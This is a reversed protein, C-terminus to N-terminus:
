FTDLNPVGDRTSIVGGLASKKAYKKMYKTYKQMNKAYNHKSKCIKAYKKCIKEYQQMQNCIPTCPQMYNHIFANTEKPQM